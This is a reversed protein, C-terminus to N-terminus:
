DKLETWGPPYGMLWEVWEPNLQGGNKPDYQAEPKGNMRDAGSYRSMMMTGMDQLSARPTPWMERAVATELNRNKDKTREPSAAGTMQARPTPLLGYGIEDIRPMLPALQYLLRGQPTTKVKWTLYCRTSGWVSTDLLMKLLWGLPARRSLLGLCKRGSIVTMKIATESGPTPFRSAHTDEPLLTLQQMNEAM